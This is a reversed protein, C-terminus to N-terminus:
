NSLSKRFRPPIWSSAMLLFIGAHAHGARFSSIQFSSLVDGRNILRLLAYGGYIVTPLSVWALIIWIRLSNM